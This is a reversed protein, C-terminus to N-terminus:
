KNEAHWKEGFYSKIVEPNTAVEAPLGEAILKGQNLVYIRDSINMIVKMVHEIIIVSIGSDRIDGVLKMIVPREKPTLGANVEDLLLIDPETALAKAVEMRKMQTLTLNNGQVNRVDYLGTFRLVEEAKAMADALKTHRLFAGVMVNELVTLNTFPQVIQYTRGIGMACVKHASYKSIDQGKYLIQGSTATVSGSLMSFLTTKGAGNAGILGLIEGKNLHIDVHNVATLGGYQKTIGRTELVIESM